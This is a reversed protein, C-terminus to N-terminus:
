LKKKERVNFIYWYQGQEPVSSRYVPDPVDYVKIEKPRPHLDVKYMQLLHGDGCIRQM